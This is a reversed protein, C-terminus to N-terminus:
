AHKGGKGAPYPDPESAAADCEDLREDALELEAIACALLHRTVGEAVKQETIMLARAHALHERIVDRVNV